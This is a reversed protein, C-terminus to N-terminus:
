LVDGGQGQCRSLSLRYMDISSGAYQKRVQREYIPQKALVETCDKGECHQRMRASRKQLAALPRLEATGTSSSSSPVPSLRLIVHTCKQSLHCIGLCLHLQGLFPSTFLISVVLGIACVCKFVFPWISVRTPCEQLVIKDRFTAEALQLQM